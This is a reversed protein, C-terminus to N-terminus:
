WRHAPARKAAITTADRLASPILSASLPIASSGARIFSREETLKASALLRAGSMSLTLM